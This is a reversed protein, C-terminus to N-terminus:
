PRGAWSTQPLGSKARNDIEIWSRGKSHTASGCSGFAAHLPLVSFFFRPVQPYNTYNPHIQGACEPHRHM